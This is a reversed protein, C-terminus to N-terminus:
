ISKRHPHLMPVIAEYEGGMAKCMLVAYEHLATNGNFWVGGEAKIKEVSGIVRILLAEMNASRDLHKQLFAESQTPGSEVKLKKQIPVTTTPKLEQPAFTTGAFRETMTPQDSVVDSVERWTSIGDCLVKQWLVDKGDKNPRWMCNVVTEKGNSM